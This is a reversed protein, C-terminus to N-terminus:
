RRSKTVTGDAFAESFVAQHDLAWLRGGGPKKGANSAGLARASCRGAGKCWGVSGSDKADQSVFHGEGTISIRIPSHAVTCSHPALASGVKQRTASQLLSDCETANKKKYFAKQM